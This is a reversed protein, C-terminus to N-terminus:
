AAAFALVLCRACRTAPVRVTLCPLDADSRVFGRGVRVARCALVDALLSVARCALEGALLSVARCALALGRCAAAFDAAGRPHARRAALRSGAAPNSVAAWVAMYAARHALHRKQLHVAEAVVKDHEVGAVAGNRGTGRRRPCQGVPMGADAAVLQDHEFRRAMRRRPQQHADAIGIAALGFGAAVGGAADGPEQAALGAGAPHPELGHGPQEFGLDQRVPPDGDIHPRRAGAPPFDRQGPSGFM